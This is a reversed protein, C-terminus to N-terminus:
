SNKNEEKEHEKGLNKNTNLGKPERWVDIINWIGFGFIGIWILAWGWGPFQTGYNYITMTANVMGTYSSTINERFYSEYPYNAHLWGLFMISFVAFPVWIELWMIKCSQIIKNFIHEKKLAIWGIIIAVFIFISISLCLPFLMDPQTKVLTSMTNYDEQVGTWKRTFYLIITAIIIGIIIYKGKGTSNDKKKEEMM